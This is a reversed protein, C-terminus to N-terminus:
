GVSHVAAPYIARVFPRTNGDCLIKVNDELVPSNKACIRAAEEVEELVRLINLGIIKELM